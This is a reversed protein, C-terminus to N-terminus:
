FKYHGVKVKAPRIVRDHLKYGKQVVELVMNDEDSKETDITGVSHGLEPNFAQGLPNIETLDHQKLITLLKGYIYEVGQRWNASVVEWTEKNAMALDFSDVVDLLELLLDHKAYRRNEERLKAEDRKLNVYDAKLRQSMELFEQREAQSVKLKERLKKLALAPNALELAEGEENADEFTIDDAEKGRASDLPDHKHTM